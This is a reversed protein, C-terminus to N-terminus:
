LPIRWFTIPESKTRGSTTLVLVNSGPLFAMEESNSYKLKRRAVERGTKVDFVIIFANRTGCESAEAAVLKGDPSLKAQTLQHSPIEFSRLLKMKPFSLLKFGYQDKPKQKHALGPKFVSIACLTEDSNLSIWRVPERYPLARWKGASNLTVIGRRKTALVDGSKLFQELVVDNAAVHSAITQLKEDLFHIKGEILIAATSGDVSGILSSLEGAFTAQSKRSKEGDAYRTLTTTYNPDDGKRAAVFVTGDPACTIDPFVDSSRLSICWRRKLRLGAVDCVMLDDFIKGTRPDVERYIKYCLVRGDAAIRLSSASVYDGESTEKEYRNAAARSNMRKVSPLSWDKEALSTDIMLLLKEREKGKSFTGQKDLAAFAEMAAKALLAYGETEDLTDEIPQILADVTPLRGELEIAYPSDEMSYRLEKRAEAMTEHYGKAVYREAVKTLGEETLVYPYFHPVGETGHLAFAYATEKPHLSRAYQWCAALDAKFADRLESPKIKKKPM